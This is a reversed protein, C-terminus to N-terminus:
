NKNDNKENTLTTVDRLEVVAIAVAVAMVCLWIFSLLVLDAIGLAVLSDNDCAWERRFYNHYHTLITHFFRCTTVHRLQIVMLSSPYTWRSSVYCICATTVLSIVLTPQWPPPAVPNSLLILMFYRCVSFRFHFIRTPVLM